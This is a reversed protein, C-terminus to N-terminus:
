CNTLDTFMYDVAAFDWVLYQSCNHEGSTSLLINSLCTHASVSTSKELQEVILCSIM